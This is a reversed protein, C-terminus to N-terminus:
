QMSDHVIVATVKTHNNQNQQSIKNTEPNKYVDKEHSVNRCTHTNYNKKKLKMQITYRKRTPKM